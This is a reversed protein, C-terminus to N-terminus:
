PPDPALWRQSWMRGDARVSALCLAQGCPDFVALTLDAVVGSDAPPEVPVGARLARAQAADVTVHPWGALGAGTPLLLADLAAHGGQEAVCELEPLSVCGGPDFPAVHHRHLRTLHALMGLKAALDEALVRIYTGKSCTVDIVWRDPTWNVLNLAEIRIERPARDVEVGERALAYLRQGDQKLASYMPPVQRQLGQSDALLAEVQQRTHPLPAAQEVVQGDADGTDTRAGLHLTARYAKHSSLLQGCIKTTHGFCIPLMGTAMPDLSGTHGAKDAGYLRRVQLLAANSTLGAPKDLLLIGDVARRPRRPKSM